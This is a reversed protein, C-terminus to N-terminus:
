EQVDSLCLRYKKRFGSQVGETQYETELIITNQDELQKWTMSLLDIGICKSTVIGQIGKIM